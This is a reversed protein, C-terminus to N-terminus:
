KRAARPPRLEPSHVHESHHAACERELLEMRREVWWAPIDSGFLETHSSIPHFGTAFREVIRGDSFELEAAAGLWNAPLPQVARPNHILVTGENWTEIHAGKRGVEYIYGTSASVAGDDSLCAGHRLMRAAGAPQRQQGLRNFKAITADNCFLIASVHEADQQGFFGKPFLDDLDQAPDSGGFLFHLLAGPPAGRPMAAHDFDQIAIVFPHGAVCPLCWQRGQLKGVLGSGAGSAQMAGMPSTTATRPETVGSSPIGVTLADVAATTGGKSLVFDPEHNRIDICHGADDFLAFLFLRFLAADFDGTRFEEVHGPQADGLAKAHLELVLDRAPALDARHRLMRFRPHLREEAQPRVDFLGASSAAPNASAAPPHPESIM